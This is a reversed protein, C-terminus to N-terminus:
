QFTSFGMLAKQKVITAILQVDLQDWALEYARRWKTWNEDSKHRNWYPLKQADPILLGTIQPSYQLRVTPESLAFLAVGPKACGMAVHLALTDVSIIANALSLASLYRDLNGKTWSSLDILKETLPADLQEPIPSATAVKIESLTLLEMLLNSFFGEPMSRAPTSANPDVWVLAQGGLQEGLYKQTDNLSQKFVKVIPLKQTVQVQNSDIGFHNYYFDAFHQTGYGTKDLLRSYDWFADYGLLEAVTPSSEFVQGVGATKKWISTVDPRANWALFVDVTVHVSREKLHGVVYELVSAGVLTDGLMTGTGNLLAFRIPSDATEPKIALIQTLLGEGSSHPRLLRGQVIKSMVAESLLCAVHDGKERKAEICEWAIYGCYVRDLPIQNLQLHATSVPILEKQKHPLKLTVKEKVYFFQM